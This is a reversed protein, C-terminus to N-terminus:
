QLKEKFGSVLKVDYEKNQPEYFHFKQSNISFISFPVCCNESMKIDFESPKEDGIVHSHFVAIMKYSNKFALYKAPSISFFNKPDSSANKEIQVIYKHQLLDYGIFGCIELYLNQNSKNILFDKVASIQFNLFKDDM